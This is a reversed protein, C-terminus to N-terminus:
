PNTKFFKISNDLEEVKCKLNKLLDNAEELSLNNQIIDSEDLSVAGLIEAGLHCELCDISPNKLYKSVLQTLNDGYLLSRNQNEPNFFYLYNYNSDVISFLIYSKGSHTFASEINKIKM